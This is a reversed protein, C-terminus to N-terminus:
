KRRYLHTLGMRCGWRCRRHGSRLSLMWWPLFPPAGVAENGVRQIGPLCSHSDPASPEGRRDSTVRRLWSATHKPPMGMGWPLPGELLTLRSQELNWSLCRDAGHVGPVLQPLQPSGRPSLWYPPSFPIFILCSPSTTTPQTSTLTFLHTFYQQM